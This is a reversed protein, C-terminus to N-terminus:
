FISLHRITCSKMQKLGLLEFITLAEANYLKEFRQNYIPLTYKFKLNTELPKQTDSPRHKM